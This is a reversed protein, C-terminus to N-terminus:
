KGAGISEPASRFHALSALDIARQKIKEPDDPFGRIVAHWPPPEAVYVTAGISVAHGTLLDLRGRIPKGRLPVVERNGIEWIEDLALDRIRFVSVEGNQPMFAVHRATGDSPRFYSKDIAFRTIVDEPSVPACEEISM